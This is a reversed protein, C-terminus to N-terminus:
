LQAPKLYYEGGADAISGHATDFGTRPVDRGPDVPQTYPGGPAYLLGEPGVPIGATGYPRRIKPAEDV